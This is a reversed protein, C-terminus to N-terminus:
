IAIYKDLINVGREKGSIPRRNPPRSWVVTSWATRLISSSADDSLAKCCSISINFLFIESYGAQCRLLKKDAQPALRRVKASLLPSIRPSRACNCRDGQWILDIPDFNSGWAAIPDQRQDFFFIQTLTPGIQHRPKEGKPSPSANFVLLYRQMVDLRRIM